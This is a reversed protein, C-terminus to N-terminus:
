KAFSGSRRLYDVVSKQFLFWVCAVSILFIIFLSLTPILPLFYIYPNNQGWEQCEESFDGLIHYVFLFFNGTVAIIFWRRAWLKRWLLGISSIAFCLSVVLFYASGGIYFGVGIGSGATLLTRIRYFSVGISGYFFAFVIGIVALIVIAIQILWKM